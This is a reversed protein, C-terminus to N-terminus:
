PRAKLEVGNLAKLEQESLSLRLKKLAQHQIQRVRERTRGILASVQELTKPKGDDFGYRMHLILRERENLEKDVIEKLLKIVDSRNLDKEPSLVRKDPLFDGITGDEGEKVSADLSIMSANVTLRTTRISRETMGLDGAIQKDSPKYGSDKELRGEAERILKMKAAAQIPVRIVRSQNAIARRIAQKIWWAAYSSFKAGKDPRFKGVAKMLGVNGEAILDSLPIGLNKYDHAIKVVLRLNGTTLKERAEDSGDAILDALEAEDERDVLPIDAIDGMYQKVSNSSYVM